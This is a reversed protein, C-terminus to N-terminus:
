VSTKRACDDRIRMLRISEWTLKATPKIALTSVMEPPAASCLADLAMLAELESVHDDLDIARWLCLAQLKMKMLLGLRQLQDQDLHPVHGTENLHDAGDDKGGSARQQRGTM